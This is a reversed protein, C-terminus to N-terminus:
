PKATASHLTVFSMRTVGAAQALAMVQAIRGYPVSEDAHLQVQALPSQTETKLQAVWAEDELERGRYVLSGNPLVILIQNDARDQQPVAATRPLQVKMAQPVIFPATVIFIVLLVLMVDVLPTVNIEAMLADEDGRSIRRTM